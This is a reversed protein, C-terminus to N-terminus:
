FLERQNECRHLEFLNTRLRKQLNEKEFDELSSPASDLLDGAANFRGAAIEARVKKIYNANKGTAPEDDIPGADNPGGGSEGNANKVNSGSGAVTKERLIKPGIALGLLVLAAITFAAVLPM